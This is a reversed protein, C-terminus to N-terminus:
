VILEVTSGGTRAKRVVVQRDIRDKLAGVHSIIGVLRDGETLGALVRMAQELSEDDLSGFGEDLFLTDLRIGGAASQVEDSLGLALALSAKFSEGGSLTKVSRRTGNYHDIIGLDLGSQSRQNEAGIRELEYQGATMQMLRTNAHRLIRDLYNMQIYAELKIKQKSTLTGGATAALASVWQWRQELQTRAEAATRYKEAAARNPLRQAALQQVQERLATRAAALRAQEAQLFELPQAPGTTEATAQQTQLADVAAKAAAYAQEAQKLSHQAQEMGTRLATRSAELANELLNSLILCLDMEDVSLEQPLDVRADFPIEEKQALAYYYGIVNDVSQNECFHFDFGPIKDMANQLYDKIKELNGDEALVSLQVFHHRIDHRAQRAEEIASRLNEYREQQVSLFLNEQQLKQNKNLINAMMLFMTYFLALILLLAYVIVIYGHLFRQTHLITNYKPILVLNLGIILVPLVWFVYWTQALNEDEVMDKVVHSAPHWILIVFLICFINYLVAFVSFGSFAQEESNFSLMASTARALSNFCSFVACVALYISVSKWLSIRLTAQYLIFTLFLLPLLIMRTSLHFRNCVFGSSFSIIVLLPLMWAIMKKPKQKLSSNVPLYALLMGPILVTFELAQFIITRM